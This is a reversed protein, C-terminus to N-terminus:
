PQVKLAVLRSSQWAFYLCILACVTLCIASSILINGLGALPSVICGFLYGGLGLLASASGADVHGETMALTNASTFVLGSFFLMPLILSEFVLISDIFYICVAECLCFLVMGTAGYVAAKKMTKFRVCVVSGIVIALANGGFILGFQMPTFGYHDQIIFPGAAIYSFLVGLAAGKLMVHIMFPRNRLLPGYEHLLSSFSGKKRQGPPLTERLHIGSALMILGVGTLIAFIGRWGLDKALFGGILPGAVPAIGNIAGVLAMIKALQLGQCIDAPITRALLVAGSAGIGQALRCGLFFSISPSFVSAASATAFVALSMYLVPKRGIKDSLPGWFLEGFGLGIMVFSLGLQVVSRSAHFDRCMQPLTPLYLDNVFSAFAGLGALYCLFYLGHAYQRSTEATMIGGYMRM